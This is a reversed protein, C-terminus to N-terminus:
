VGEQACLAMLLATFPDSAEYSYLIPSDVLHVQCAWGKESAFLGVFHKDQKLMEILGREPYQWDILKPICLTNYGERQRSAETHYELNSDMEYHFGVRWDNPVVEFIFEDGRKVFRMKERFFPQLRKLLDIQEKTMDTM